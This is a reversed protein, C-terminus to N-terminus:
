EDEDAVAALRFAGAKENRKREEEDAIRARMEVLAKETDPNDDRVAGVADFIVVREYGKLVTPDDESMINDFREKTQVVLMSLVLTKGADVKFPAVEMTQSLVRAGKQIQASQRLIPKSKHRGLPTAQFLESTANAEM